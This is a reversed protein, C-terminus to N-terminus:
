NVAPMGTDVTHAPTSAVVKKWRRPFLSTKMGPRSVEGACKGRMWFLQLGKLVDTSAVSDSRPIMGYMVVDRRKEHLKNSPTM